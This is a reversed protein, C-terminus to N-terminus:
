FNLTKGLFSFFFYRSGCLSCQTLFLHLVYILLTQLLQEFLRAQKTDSGNTRHSIQCLRPFCGKAVPAWIHLHWLHPFPSPPLWPSFAPKSYLDWSIYCMLTPVYIFVVVFFLHANRTEKIQQPSTYPLCPWECTLGDVRSLQNFIRKIVRQM